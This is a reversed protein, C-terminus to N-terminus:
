IGNRRSLLVLTEVQATQPFMDFPRVYVARYSESLLKLDRALTASDCSIYVINDAETDALTKCVAEGLGKRPPDAVVSIKKGRLKDALEPLVKNVDGCINTLRPLANIGRVENADAAAAGDIEVAYTDYRDSCLAATLIGIGSFCDILAETGSLDLLKRVEGYLADKVADNVQFFSTPGLKFKVGFHESVIAEAGCVHVTKKGLIVNNRMSNENIFLGFVDFEKGLLEAFPKLDGKFPGNSVVTVLLQGDVYRATLHRVQGRFTKEDYPEIGYENMYKRFLATLKDAWDGGLLCKETDTVDHTGEKYMGIKVAGKRGSVPFSLKNRYCLVNPSAFTEKVETDLGGIKRLNNIVKARKFRLQEEYNMHMLSCGGCKGYYRCSPSVRFPSPALITKCVGYAAGNKVYTIRAEAREGPIVGKVFLTCDSVSGIAEGGSGYAAAEFTVTENQKLM